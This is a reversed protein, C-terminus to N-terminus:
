GPLADGPRHPRNATAAFSHGVGASPVSKALELDVAGELLLVPVDVGVDILEVAEELTAVGFGPAGEALLHEAAWSAGNGYADAKLIGYVRAGSARECAVRYNHRLASPDRVLQAPRTM